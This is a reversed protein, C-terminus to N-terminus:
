RQRMRSLCETLARDLIAMATDIQERTVTLPPAIRFIHASAQRAINLSAGLEICRRGVEAGLKHAPKKSHRDEVLEMGILLGRGRM